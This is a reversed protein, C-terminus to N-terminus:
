GMYCGTDSIRALLALTVSARKDGPADGVVGRFYFLRDLSFTLARVRASRVERYM